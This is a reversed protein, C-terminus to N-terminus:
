NKRLEANEKELWSVRERLGLVEAELSGIRDLCSQVVKDAATVYDLRNQSKFRFLFGIGGAGM